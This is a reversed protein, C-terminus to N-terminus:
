KRRGDSTLLREIRVAYSGRAVVPKGVAKPTGEIRLTAGGDAAGDLALVEGARLALLDRVSIRGRGLEAQMLVGTRKMERWLRDRLTSDTPDHGHIGSSLKDKLPELASYALITRVGARRGDLDLSIQTDVVVSHAPLSTVFQPNLEIRVLEPRLAIIPEWARGLDELLVRSLRAMIRQEIATLERLEAVDDAVDKAGFFADLVAYVLVPDLVLLGLTHLAEIKFLAICSPMPLTALVEEFKVFGRGMPTGEIRRRLSGTLSARMSRCFRDDIRDLSPLPGRVPKGQSTLDYPTAEGSQFPSSDEGGAVPRVDQAAKLLADIEEESLIREM